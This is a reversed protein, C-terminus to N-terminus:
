VLIVHTIKDQIYASLKIGMATQARAKVIIQQKRLVHREYQVGSENNDDGIIKM